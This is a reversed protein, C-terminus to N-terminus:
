GSPLLEFERQLPHDSCDLIANAKRLVKHHYIDTLQAQRVGIMKSAVRVHTNLRNTTSCTSTASGVIM